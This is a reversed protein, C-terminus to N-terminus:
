YTWAFVSVIYFDPKDLAAQAIVDVDIHADSKQDEYLYSRISDIAPERKV